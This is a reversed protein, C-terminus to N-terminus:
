RRLMGPTPYATTLAAELKDALVVAFQPRNVPWGTYKDDMAHDTNGDPIVRELEVSVGLEALQEHLFDELATLTRVRTAYEGIRCIEEVIGAAVERPCGYGELVPGILAVDPTADQHRILRIGTGQPWGNPTRGDRPLYAPPESM